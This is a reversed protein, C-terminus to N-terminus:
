AISDLANQLIIAEPLAVGFSNRLQVGNKLNANGSV